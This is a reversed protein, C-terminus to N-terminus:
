PWVIVDKYVFIFAHVFEHLVLSLFVIDEEVIAYWGIPQQICVGGHFMTMPPNSWGNGSYHINLPFNM